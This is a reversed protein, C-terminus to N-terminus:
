RGVNFMRRVYILILLQKALHLRDICETQSSPLSCNTYEDLAKHYPGSVTRFRIKRHNATWPHADNLPKNSANRSATPWGRDCMQSLFKYSIAKMIITSLSCSWYWYSMPCFISSFQNSFPGKWQDKPGSPHFISVFVTVFQMSTKNENM